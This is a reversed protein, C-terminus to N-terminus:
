EVGRARRGVGAAGGNQECGGKIGGRTHSTGLGGGGAASVTCRFLLACRFFRLFRLFGLYRVAVLLVLGLAVASLRVGWGAGWGAGWGVVLGVAM